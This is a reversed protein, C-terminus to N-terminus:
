AALTAAPTRHVGAASGKAKLTMVFALVRAVANYLDPPIESGLECAKHLARALPIDQVMPIRKETAVERIRTAVAGAGKAVVRPAGKTPDYRLAVAVHTPNVLVVDAKALDAMMRQRSMALQKSRIAGKLHPDGEAQKHEQKVEHKTMRLQKNIRRRAVAYDAVGMVLGAVAASRILTVITGAILNVLAPLPMSGASVLGPLMTHLSLYLVTGLVAVKFTAKVAEWVAHGGFSKKIGTFPNLRKFDPKLLKLAPRLGGQAAGAVLGTLMIGLVLPAIATAGARLGSELVKMAKAPDPDAIIDTTQYLVKEAAHMANRVTMPLVVSAVLLGGWSGLDPTRAVRGEKRAERKRKETPKETKEGSV